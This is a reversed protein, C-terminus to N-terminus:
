EGLRAVGFELADANFTCRCALIDTIYKDMHFTMSIADGGSTSQVTVQAISLAVFYFKKLPLATITVDAGL